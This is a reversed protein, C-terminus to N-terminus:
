NCSDIKYLYKIIKDVIQRYVAGAEWCEWFLPSQILKHMTQLHKELAFSDMRDLVELIEKTNGSISFALGSPLVVTELNSGIYIWVSGSIIANLIKENGISNSNEIVLSFKSGFTYIGLVIHTITFTM